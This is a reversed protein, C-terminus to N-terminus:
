SLKSTIFKLYCFIFCFLINFIKLYLECSEYLISIFISILLYCLSSFIQTCLHVLRSLLPLCGCEHGGARVPCLRECADRFAKKWLELSFNSQGQDVSSSTRRYNKRSGSGIDQDIAKAAVSQM